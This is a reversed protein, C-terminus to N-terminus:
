YLDISLKQNLFTDDSTGEKHIIMKFDKHIFSFIHHLNDLGLYIKSCKEHM